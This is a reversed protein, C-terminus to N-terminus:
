NTRTQPRVGDQMGKLVHLLNVHVEWLIASKGLVFDAIDDNLDRIELDHRAVMEMYTRREVEIWKVFDELTHVGVHRAFVDLPQECKLREAITAFGKAELQEDLTM